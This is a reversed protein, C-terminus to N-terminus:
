QLRNECTLLLYRSHFIAIYLVQACLLQLTQLSGLTFAHPNDSELYVTGLVKGHLLLPMCVLSRAHANAASSFYPESFLGSDPLYNVVVARKMLLAARVARSCCTLSNTDSFTEPVPIPSRLLTACPTGRNQSRSWQVHTYCTEDNGQTLLLCGYAVHFYTVVRSLFSTILKGLNTSESVVSSCEVVESVDIDTDTTPLPYTLPDLPVFTKVGLLGAHESVLVSVVACAGWRAYGDISRKLTERARDRHGTRLLFMSLHELIIANHHYFERQIALQSASEYLRLAEENQNSIHAFEAEILVYRHECNLQSCAAWKRLVELNAKLKEVYHMSNPHDSPTPNDRHFLSALSLSYHFYFMSITMQGKIDEVVNKCHAEADALVQDYRHLLNHAKM